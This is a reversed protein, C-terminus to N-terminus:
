YHQAPAIYELYGHAELLETSQLHWRPCGMYYCLSAMVVPMRRELQASLRLNELRQLLWAGAGLIGMQEWICALSAQHVHLRNLGLGPWSTLRGEQSQEHISVEERSGLRGGEEM